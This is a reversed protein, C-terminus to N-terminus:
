LDKCHCTWPAYETETKELMEENMAKYRDYEKNRKIDEKSVRWATEKSGLLKDFRKKQEKQSIYLFFKILVAGDDTLTREFTNIEQYAYLLEERSIKNEFRDVSVKRYWSTDFFAIRGKEPTKTWFRWLFPHMEEEETAKKIAFVQFGRPDLVLIVPIGLAKCERQLRALEPEMVEMKEQYVSKEMKKTLNIQELM